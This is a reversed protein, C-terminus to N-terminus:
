LCHIIVYSPTYGKFALDNQKECEPKKITIGANEYNNSETNLNIKLLMDSSFVDYIAIQLLFGTNKMRRASFMIENFFSSIIKIQDLKNKNFPVM